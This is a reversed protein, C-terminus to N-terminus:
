KSTCLNNNIHKVNKSFAMKHFKSHLKNLSHVCKATVTYIKIVGFVISMDSNDLRTVTKVKRKELIYSSSKWGGIEIEISVKVFKLHM